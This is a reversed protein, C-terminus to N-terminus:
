TLLFLLLIIIFLKFIIFKSLNKKNPEEKELIEDYRFFFCHMLEKPTKYPVMNDQVFDSIWKSGNYMCIHGNGDKTKNLIVLIVGRQQKSYNDNLFQVSKNNIEEIIKFRANVLIKDYYYLSANRGHTRINFGGALLAKGVYRGCSKTSNPEANRELFELAKDIKSKKIEIIPDFYLDFPLILEYNSRNGNMFAKEMRALSFFSYKYELYQNNLYCEIIFNNSNNDNGYLFCSSSVELYKKVGYFYIKFDYLNKKSGIYNIAKNYRSKGFLKFTHKGEISLGQYEISNVELINNPSNTLNYNHIIYNMGLVGLSSNGIKFVLNIYEERILNIEFSGECKLLYEGGTRDNYKIKTKNLKIINCNMGCYLSRNNWFNDYPYTLPVYRVRMNFPTKPLLNKNYFSIYSYYYFFKGYGESIYNFEYYLPIQFDLNYIKIRRDDIYKDYQKTTENYIVTINYMNNSLDFPLVTDGNTFVGPKELKLVYTGEYIPYYPSCTLLSWNHNCKAKM